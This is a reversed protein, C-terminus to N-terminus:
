AAHHSQALIAPHSPLSYFDQIDKRKGPYFITLLIKFSYRNDIIFKFCNIILNRAPGKAERLTEAVLSLMKYSM